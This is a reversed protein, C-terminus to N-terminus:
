ANFSALDDGVVSLGRGSPQYESTSRSRRGRGREKPLSQVGSVGPGGTRRPMAVIVAAPEIRDPGVNGIGLARFLFGAVKGIRPGNTKSM